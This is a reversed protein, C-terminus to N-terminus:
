DAQLKQTSTKTCCGPSEHWLKSSLVETPRTGFGGPKGETFHTADLLSFTEVMHEFGCTGGEFPPGWELVGWEALRGHLCPGHTDAGHQSGQIHCKGSLYYISLSYKQFSYSLFRLLM